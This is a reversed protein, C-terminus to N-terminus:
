LNKYIMNARQELKKQLIIERTQFSYHINIYNILINIRILSFESKINIIQQLIFM